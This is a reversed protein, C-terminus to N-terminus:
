LNLLKTTIVNQLRCIDIETTLTAMPDINLTFVGKKIKKQNTIVYRYLVRPMSALGMNGRRINTYTGPTKIQWKRSNLSINM